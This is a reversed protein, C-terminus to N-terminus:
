RDTVPRGNIYPKLCAYIFDNAPTAIALKKGLRSLHGNTAEVELRHGQELDVLLSPRWESPLREFLSSSEEIFSPSLTIGQSHAVARAEAITQLFLMRTEPTSWVVAKAGRVVAFVGAGSIIALKWWMRELINPVAKAEIGATTFIQAILQSRASIEGGVEGLELTNNRGIREVIGPATSHATVLAMGGLVHEAGLCARLVELHEIGNLMQLIATQPGVLPRMMEAAIQADYTKVCFLVLDVLGAEEPADTTGVPKITFDGDSSRVLLGNARIAHLREGRAIFTVDQGAHALRGGLYGGM